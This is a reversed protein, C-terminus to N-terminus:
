SSIIKFDVYKGCSPILVLFRWLYLFLFLGLMACKITIKNYPILSSEFITVSQIYILLYALSFPVEKYLFISMM